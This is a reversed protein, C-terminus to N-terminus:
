HSEDDPTAGRWGFKRRCEEDEQMPFYDDFTVLASAVADDAIGATSGDPEVDRLIDAVIRTYSIIHCRSEEEPKALFLSLYRVTNSQEIRGFDDMDKQFQDYYVRLLVELGFSGALVGGGFALAFGSILLSKRMGGLSVTSFRQEPSRTQILRHTQRM